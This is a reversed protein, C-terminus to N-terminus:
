NPAPVKFIPETPTPVDRADFAVGESQGLYQVEAGPWPFTRSQTQIAQVANTVWDYMREPDYFHIRFGGKSLDTDWKASFALIIKLISVRKRTFEGGVFKRPMIYDRMFSDEFEPTEVGALELFSAGFASCGSGEGRRPRANLGAYIKDYGRAQYEKVYEVLRACTAPSVEFRLFNSRGTVHMAALDKEADDTADLLGDYTKLLIGLGYGEKFLAHSEQSNGVDTAGTFFHTQGCELEEYVHGVSHRDGGHVKAIQNILTSDALTEPRKWNIGKPSPIFHLTVQNAAFASSLTLLFGASLALFANFHM